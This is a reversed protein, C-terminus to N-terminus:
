VMMLKPLSIKKDLESESLFAAALAQLKAGDPEMKLELSIKNRWSLRVLFKMPAKKGSAELMILGRLNVLGDTVATVKVNQFRVHAQVGKVAFNFNIDPLTVQVM